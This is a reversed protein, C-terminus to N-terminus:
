NADGSVQDKLLTLEFVTVGSFDLRLGIVPRTRRPIITM